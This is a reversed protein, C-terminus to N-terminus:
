LMASLMVRALAYSGGMLSLGLLWLILVIIADGRSLHMPTVSVDVGSLYHPDACADGRM